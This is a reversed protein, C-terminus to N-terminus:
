STGEGVEIAYQPYLIGFIVSGILLTTVLPRVVDQFRTRNWGLLAFAFCVSTISLLSVYRNMTASPDISWLVSLPVLALFVWFFPNVSRLELWALRARWLIIVTSLALLGLKIARALPHPATMSTEGALEMDGSFYQIPVALYVILVWVMLAAILSGRSDPLWARSHVPHAARPPARPAARPSRLTLPRNM